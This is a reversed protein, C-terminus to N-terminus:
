SNLIKRLVQLGNGKHSNRQTNQSSQQENDEQASASLQNVM